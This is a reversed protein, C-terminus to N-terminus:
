WSSKRVGRNKRSICIVRGPACVWFFVWVVRNMKIAMTLKFIRDGCSVTNCRIGIIIIIVIITVQINTLFGGFQAVNEIDAIVRVGFGFVVTVPVVGFQISLGWSPQDGNQWM